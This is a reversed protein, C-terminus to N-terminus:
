NKNKHEAFAIEHKQNSYDFAHCQARLFSTGFYWMDLGPGYVESGDRILVACTQQGDLPRTYLTAPVKYTYGSLTFVLDPLTAIGSCDVTYIDDSFDYEANLQAIIQAFIRPPAWIYAETSVLLAPRGNEKATYSGLSFTSVIFDFFYDTIAPPGMPLTVWKGCNQTDRAGFTIAGAMSATGVAPIDSNLYVSVVPKGLKKLLGFVTCNDTDFWCDFSIALGLVGDSAWRPNLHEIAHMTYFSVNKATVSGIEYYEAALTGNGVGTGNLSGCDGTDAYPPGFSVSSIGGTYSLNQYTSSLSPTYVRRSPNAGKCPAEYYGNLLTLTTDFGYDITLNFPQPPTGIGVSIQFTEEAYFGTGQTSLTPSVSRRHRGQLRSLGQAPFSSQSRHTTLVTLPLQVGESASALPVSLLLFTLVSWFNM